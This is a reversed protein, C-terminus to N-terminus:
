IPGAVMTCLTASCALIERQGPLAMRGGHLLDRHISGQLPLISGAVPTEKKTIPEIALSPFLSIFQGPNASLVPTLAPNYKHLNADIRGCKNQKDGCGQRRSM